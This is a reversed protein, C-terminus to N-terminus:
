VHATMEEILDSFTEIQTLDLNETAFGAKGLIDMFDAMDSPTMHFDGTFESDEEVDEMGIGLFDALERKVKQSITNTESDM